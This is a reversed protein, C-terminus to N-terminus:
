SNIFLSQTEKKEFKVGMQCNGSNNNFKRFIVLRLVSIYQLFHPFSISSVNSKRVLAQNPSTPMTMTAMYMRFKLLHSYLFYNFGLYVM